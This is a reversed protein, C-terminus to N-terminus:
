AFRSQSVSKRDRAQCGKFKILLRRYIQSNECAFIDKPLSPKKLLATHTYETDRHSIEPRYRCWESGIDITTSYQTVHQTSYFLFFKCPLLPLPINGHATHSNARKPRLSTSSLAPKAHACFSQMNVYTYMCLRCDCALFANRQLLPSYYAPRFGVCHFCYLALFYTSLIPHYLFILFTFLSLLPKAIILFIWIILSSIKM